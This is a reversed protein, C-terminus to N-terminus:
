SGKPCYAGLMDSRAHASYFYFKDIVNKRSVSKMRLNSVRAFERQPCDTPISWLNSTQSARAMAHIKNLVDPTSSGRGSVVPLELTSSSTVNSNVKLGSLWSIDPKIGASLGTLQAYRM